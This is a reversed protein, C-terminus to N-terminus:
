ITNAQTVVQQPNQSPTQPMGPGGQPAGMPMMQAMPNQQPKPPQLGMIDFLSPIIDQAFQPALKLTAILNQTLVNKDIEENTVYVQVDYETFDLEDELEAFRDNGSKSLKQIANQREMEVQQPDLYIGKANAKSIMDALISNVKQEDWVRIEEPEGTIRYIEGVTVNKMIVPIAQNKLWRQLFMGIGEKILVFASQAGQNQLATATASTSSPLAEGTVVEFASTIRQAWTQINAEDQYSAQSAEQIVMQEIDNIDNVQIAGNSALRALMQPTIGSGKRIKFIGLQSVYSRNIRINVITNMWLQLMMVKEAVGKGYWRGPVRTYWCEEYPKKGKKNEEILHIKEKGAQDLGSVVIHGDIDIDKDDEDGTILSKPIKGWMEYLDVYKNTQTPNYNSNRLTDTRALNTSPVIDDTNIWGKQSQIEEVTMLSRETFRYAEQISPATPDIYVNLLDVNVLKMEYGGDDCKQEITKWVATGDIAIRRELDDLYEGFTMEDLEHRVINRVLATLPIAKANKARFNIDKTDLDINKVVTEVMSETLPIWIKKRGTVPDIPEDFVGWYNKRLLRILNRMQFAVKETIFATADEWSQVERKVLSAAQAEIDATSLKKTAM